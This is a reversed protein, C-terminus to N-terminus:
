SESQIQELFRVVIDAAEQPNTQLMLHPAEIRKLLVEPRAKQIEEFSRANVLRDGRGSLCLLPVSLRHLESQADCSLASKLRHAMVGSSVGSIASQVSRVLGESARGGVLFYRCLSSPLGIKFLVPAFISAIRSPVKHLPPSVFGACLVLAQLGPPNESALSVALPTSFSEALIVFQGDPPIFSRAIAKLQEYSLLRDRPYSVVHPEIWGPLAQVFKAFLEGTGNMGPMLLLQLRQEEM